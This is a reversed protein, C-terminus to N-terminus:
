VIKKIVQNQYEALVEDDLGGQFDYAKAENVFKGKIPIKRTSDQRFWEYEIDLHGADIVQVRNRNFIKYSLIKAAPGAALLVLPNEGMEEIQASALEFIEDVKDYANIAPVLIRQVKEASSLLDNGVGFRTGEGEILLIKRGAALQKFGDFIYESLKRDQTDLFPRSVCADAYLISPSLYKAITPLNKAVTKLWYSKARATFRNFGIKSSFCGPLGIMFNPDRFQLVELLDKGLKDSGKQFYIDHVAHHLSATIIQIEGEGFRVLSKGGLLAKVTEESEMIKLPYKAYLKKVVPPYFFLSLKKSRDILKLM